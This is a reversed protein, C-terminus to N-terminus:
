PRSVALEPFGDSRVLGDVGRVAEALRGPDLDPGQVGTGLGAAEEGLLREFLDIGIINGTDLVGTAHRVWQWLQAAALEAEYRDVGEAGALYRIALRINDRVGGETIRGHPVQLLDAAEVPRDGELSSREPGGSVGRLGAGRRQALDALRKNYARICPTRDTLDARDPLVFEPRHSFLRILSVLYGAPCAELTVPFERLEYLIEEAELAAAVTDIVVLVRPSADGAPLSLARRRADEYGALGALRVVDRTAHTEGRKVSWDSARIRATSTPYGPLAVPEPAQSM